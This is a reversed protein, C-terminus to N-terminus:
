RFPRARLRGAPPPASDSPATVPELEEGEWCGQDGVYFFKIVRGFGVLPLVHRVTVVEGTARVRVADGVLHVPECYTPDADVRM